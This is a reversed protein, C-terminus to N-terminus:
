RTQLYARFGYSGTVDTSYGRVKAIYRRGAQVSFTVMANTGSSGSDDDMELVNDDDDAYYLEMYTDTDGTTEVVLTGNSDPVILFFDEDSNHLTRSIIQASGVTSTLFDYAVPTEFSDFEWEDMMATSSSSRDVSSTFMMMIYRDRPLNTNVAAVVALNERRILRTYVRVMEGVVVIDGSIIFQSSGGTSFVNYSKNPMNALEETLQNVWYTSFQTINGMYTFQGLTVMQAREDSLKRHLNGALTKIANDVDQLHNVTTQAYSSATLTIFVMIFFCIRRM